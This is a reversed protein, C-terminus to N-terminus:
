TTAKEFTVIRVNSLSDFLPDNPHRQGGWTELADKIYKRLESLTVADDVDFALTTSVRRRM